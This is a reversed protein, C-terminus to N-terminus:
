FDTFPATELVNSCQHYRVENELIRNETKRKLLIYETLMEEKSYDEKKEKDLVTKISTLTAEASNIEEVLKKRKSGSFVGLNSLDTKLKKTKEILMKYSRELDTEKPSELDHIKEEVKILSEQLKEKENKLHNLQEILEQYDSQREDWFNRVHLIKRTKWINDLKEKLKNYEESFMTISCQMDMLINIEDRVDVETKNIHISDPQNKIGFEYVFSIIGHVLELSRLAEILSKEENLIGVNNQQWYSMYLLVKAISALIRNSKQVEDANIISGTTLIDFEKNYIVEAEHYIKNFVDELINELTEDGLGERLNVFHLAIVDSWDMILDASEIIDKMSTSRSLDKFLKGMVSGFGIVLYDFILQFEKPDTKGRFINPIYKLNDIMKDKTLHHTTNSLYWKLYWSLSSFPDDELALNIYAEAQGFERLKIYEFALYTYKNAENIGYRDLTVERLDILYSEGFEHEPILENKAFQRFCTLCVVRDQQVCFDNKGCNPCVKGDM